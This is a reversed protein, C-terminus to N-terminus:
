SPRLTASAFTMVAGPAAEPQKAETGYHCDRETDCDCDPYCDRGDKPAGCVLDPTAASTPAAALMAHRSIGCATCYDFRPDHAMNVWRHACEGPRPAKVLAWSEPAVPAPVAAPASLRRILAAARTLRDWFNGSGVHPIFTGWQNGIKEHRSADVMETLLTAMKEGDEGASAQPAAGEAAPAARLTALCVLLREHVSRFLPDGLEMQARHWGAIEELTKDINESM